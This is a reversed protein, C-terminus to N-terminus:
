RSRNMLLTLAKNKIQGPDANIDHVKGGFDVLMVHPLAGPPCATILSNKGSEFHPEVIRILSVKESMVNANKPLEPDVCVALICVAKNKLNGANANLADLYKLSKSSKGSWYVVIVVKQKLDDDILQTGASDVGRYEITQDQLEIRTLGSVAVRNASERYDEIINGKAISAVIDQFVLKAEEPFGNREFWQALTAAQRVLLFGIQPQGLLRSATKTLERRGAKGNAWRDTFKRDFNEFDLLLRDAINQMKRELTPKLSGVPNRERLKSFLAQMYRPDENLLVLTHAEIMSAVYEDEPFRKITDAFLEVLENVDESGSKLKEFSRHTLMAIRANSYVQANTDDLYPTYAAELEAGSNELGLNSTFDLGYLKVRALMHESVAVERMAEDAPGREIVEEAVDIRSRCINVSDLTSTPRSAKLKSLEIMLEELTDARAAVDRAAKRKLQDNSYDENVVPDSTFAFILVITTVMGLVMALMNTSGGTTDPVIVPRLDDPKELRKPKRSSKSKKSSSM